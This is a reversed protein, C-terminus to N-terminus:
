DGSIFFRWRGDPAIGLRYFTYSDNIRMEELDFWTVVQLLEVVEPPTLGSPSRAWFWPWVYTADSTGPAFLVPDTELIDIMIALAEVSSPDQAAQEIYDLADGAPEDDDGSAEGTFITLQTGGEGPDALRALKRIDGTRAAQLLRARMDAVADPLSAPDTIRQAPSDALGDDVIEDQQSGPNTNFPDTPRPPDINFGQPNPDVRLM